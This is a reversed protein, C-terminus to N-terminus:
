KIAEVRWLQLSSSNEKMLCVGRLNSDQSSSLDGTLLKGSIIFIFIMQSLFFIRFKGDFYLKIHHEDVAKIKWETGKDSSVTMMHLLGFNVSSGQVKFSTLDKSLDVEASWLQDDNQNETPCCFVKSASFSLPFNFLKNILRFKAGAPEPWLLLQLCPPAKAKLEEFNKQKLFYDRHL